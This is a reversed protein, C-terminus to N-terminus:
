ARPPRRRTAFFQQLQERAADALIGSRVTLHHNLAPNSALDVISGLAGAKADACGFVVRKIRAHFMAGVCMACPEVTVFLEADPLRYNGLATAAARLALVEAHATPDHLRIPANHGRGIIEDRQVVIAGVPVEGEAAAAAAEALCHQMWYEDGRGTM